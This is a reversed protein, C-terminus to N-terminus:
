CRALKYNIVKYKGHKSKCKITYTKGKRIELMWTNKGIRDIRCQKKGVYAKVVAPKGAVEVTAVYHDDYGNVDTIYPLSCSDYSGHGVKLAQVESPCFALIIMGATTFVMMGLLLKYLKDM